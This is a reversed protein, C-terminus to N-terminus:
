ITYLASVLCSARTSKAPDWTLVRLARLREGDRTPRLSFAVVLSSPSWAHERAVGAVVLAFVAVVAVNAAGAVGVALIGM